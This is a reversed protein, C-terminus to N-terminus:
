PQHWSNRRLGPKGCRCVPPEPLNHGTGRRTAVAVVLGWDPNPATASVVRIREVPGRWRFECSLARVRLYDVHFGPVQCRLCKPLCPVRAGSEHRCEL